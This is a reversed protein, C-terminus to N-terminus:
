RVQDVCAYACWVCRAQKRRPMSNSRLLHGIKVHSASNSGGVIPPEDEGPELSLSELVWEITENGIIIFGSTRVSRNTTPM